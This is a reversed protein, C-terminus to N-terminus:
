ILSLREIYRLNYNVNKFHIFKLNLALMGEMNRDQMSIFGLIEKYWVKSTDKRTDKYNISTIRRRLKIGM